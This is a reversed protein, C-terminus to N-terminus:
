NHLNKNSVNPSGESLGTTDFNELLGSNEHAHISFVVNKVTHPVEQILKISGNSMTGNVENMITTYVVHLQEM